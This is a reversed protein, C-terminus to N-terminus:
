VRKANPHVDEREAVLVEASHLGRQSGVIGVKRDFEKAAGVLQTVPTEALAHAIDSRFASVRWGECGTLGQAVTVSSWHEDDAQVALAIVHSIGARFRIAALAYYSGLLGRFFENGVLLNARLPQLRM